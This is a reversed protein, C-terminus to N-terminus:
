TSDVENEKGALQLGNKWGGAVEVEGFIIKRSGVFTVSFARIKKKGVKNKIEESEVYKALERHVDRDLWEIIKGRRFKETKSSFSLDMVEEPCLRALEAAKGLATKNRLDIYWPQISKLEM